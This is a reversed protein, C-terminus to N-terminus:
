GGLKAIEKEIDERSMSVLEGQEKQSLAELLRRKREATEAAKEAAAKDELKAAIVHKLVDLRLQAVAKRPDPKVEVFSGEELEKLQRHATRALSDLNLTTPNKATLPLDWLQETSLAGINSDFRLKGRSAREFIDM